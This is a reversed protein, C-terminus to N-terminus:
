SFLLVVGDAGRGTSFFVLSFNKLVPQPVKSNTTACHWATHISLVCYLWLVLQQINKESECRLACENNPRRWFPEGIIWFERSRDPRQGPM